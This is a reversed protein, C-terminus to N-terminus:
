NLYQISSVNNNVPASLIGNPLTDQFSGSTSLGTWHRIRGCFTSITSSIRNDWALSLNIYGGACNVGSVSISSGTFNGDYHIALTALLSAAADRAAEPTELDAGLGLAAMAGSFETYCEEESLIYEGDPHQGIVEVYCHTAPQQSRSTSAGASPVGTGVLATTAALVLGIAATRRLHHSM